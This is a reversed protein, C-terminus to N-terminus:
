LLFYFDSFLQNQVTVLIDLLNNISLNHIFSVKLQNQNFGIEWVRQRRQM